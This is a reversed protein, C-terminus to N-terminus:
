LPSPPNCASASNSSTASNAPNTRAVSGSSPTPNAATTMPQPHSPPPRTSPPYPPIESRGTSQLPTTTQLPHHASTTTSSQSQPPYQRNLSTNSPFHSTLNRSTSRSANRVQLLKAKQKRNAPQSAINQKHPAPYTPSSVHNVKM